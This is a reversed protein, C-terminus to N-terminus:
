ASGDDGSAPNIYNPKDIWKRLQRSQWIKHDEIRNNLEDDYKQRTTISPYNIEGPPCTGMTGTTYQELTNKFIELQEESLSFFNVRNNDQTYYETNGTELIMWEENM